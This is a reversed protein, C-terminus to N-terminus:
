RDPVKDDDSGSCHIDEIQEIAVKILQEIGNVVYLESYYDDPETEAPKVWRFTLEDETARRSNPFVRISCGRYRGWEDADHIEKSGDKVWETHKQLMRERLGAQQEIIKESDSCDATM